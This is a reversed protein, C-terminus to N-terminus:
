IWRSIYINRTIGDKYREFIKIINDIIIKLIDGASKKVKIQLLERKMEKRFIYDDIYKSVIEDVQKAKYLDEKDDISINCVYNEYFSVLRASIYDSELFEFNIIKYYNPCYSLISNTNSM